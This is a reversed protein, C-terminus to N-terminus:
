RRPGIAFGDGRDARPRAQCKPCWYTTRGADGQRQCRITTGCRACPRGRRGYVWLRAGREDVRTVRARTVTNQELLQAATTVIRDLQEDDLASVGAFPDIGCLFLVESKYVNGIGAVASQDLIAVGIPTEGLARLRRRAEAGDFGPGLLDPGLSEIRRDRRLRAEDVLEVVPAHFCVAIVDRMTLVIRAGRASKMWPEGPRYIHWSGTMRLHTFLVLAGDFHIFLNKGRADVGLVRRGVLRQGEISPVRSECELVELGALVRHLTRASRFITDGEPMGIAWTSIMPSTTTM